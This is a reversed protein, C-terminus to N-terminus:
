NNRKAKEIEENKKTLYYFIYVESVGQQWEMTRKEMIAKEATPTLFKLANLEKYNVYNTINTYAIILLSLIILIKILINKFSFVFDLVYAIMILAIFRNISYYYDTLEGNYTTFVFWPVMFWLLILYCFIIENRSRSKFFRIAFFAPFILFRLFFLKDWALYPKFEILADGALQMLRRLHFGHYSQSLYGFSNGSKQQLQYVINPILWIIFFPLSLLGYKVMEKTRPFFPLSLLIIIPFFIATFHINFALGVIFALPIVKKVDGQLLRYLCYFILLSISPIFAVPWQVRDFFIAATTFTNIFIAFLAVRESFLKKAIFYIVWFTFISTVGAIIPSAIPNLNTLFYFLAVFYYYAPGIFIGTNAKAVMGVLPYKHDVLMTKAAWANDVQDYGFGNKIDLQYFRLFLEFLFILIVFLLYKNKFLNKLKM